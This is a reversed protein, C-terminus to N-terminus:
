PPDFGALGSGQDRIGELRELGKQIGRAVALPDNFPRGELFHWCVWHGAGLVASSREFADILATEAPDIPRVGSYADLAAARLAPAHGIWESLLRALDAAVTDVGMAGFDILGTVADGSFLIHDPRVDRLCPQRDVVRGAARTLPELLRPGSDRALALWRLAPPQVPDDPCRSLVGELERFGGGVLWGLERARAQLGPSPGRSHSRALRQHFAALAAFASRVRGASGPPSPEAVGPMWPAVEWLRGAREQLSRGDLGALPVPVFGLRGAEAIWGHIEELTARPPGDIPWCRALLPGLGSGYRWLRSGSLGGGGGLPEVGATPRAVAPYRALVANLDGDM